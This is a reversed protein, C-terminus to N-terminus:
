KESKVYDECLYKPSLPFLSFAKGKSLIIHPCSYTSCSILPEERRGIRSGKHFLVTLLLAFPLLGKKGPISSSVNSVLFFCFAKRSGPNWYSLYIVTPGPWHDTEWHQSLPLIVLINGVRLYLSLLHPMVPLSGSCHFFDEREILLGGLISCTMATKWAPPAHLLCRSQCMHLKLHFISYCCQFFRWCSFM